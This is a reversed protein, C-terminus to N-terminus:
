SLLKIEKSYTLQKEEIAFNNKWQTKWDTVWWKKYINRASEEMDILIFFEEPSICRTFFHTQVLPDMGLFFDRLRVPLYRDALAQAADKTLVRVIENTM